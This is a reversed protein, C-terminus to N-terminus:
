FLFFTIFLLQWWTIFGILHLFFFFLSFFWFCFFHFFKMQSVFGSFKFFAWSLYRWFIWFFVFLFLAYIVFLRGLSSYFLIHLRGFLFLGCWSFLYFFGFFDDFLFMWLCGFFHFLQGFYDPLGFFCDTVVSGFGFNISRRVGDGVTIRIVFFFSNLRNNIVFVIVLFVDLLTAFGFIIVLIQLFYIRRVYLLLQFLKLFFFFSISLHLSIIFSFSFLRVM